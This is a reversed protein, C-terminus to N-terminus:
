KAGDPPYMGSLLLRQTQEDAIGTAKLGMARQYSTLADKFTGTFKNSVDLKKLFGMEALLSKMSAVAEGSDNLQLTKFSRGTLDLVQRRNPDFWLPSASAPQYVILPKDGKDIICAILATQEGGEYLSRLSDPSDLLYHRAYEVGASSVFCFDENGIEAKGNPASLAKVRVWVLLFEQTRLPVINYRNMDQARNQAAMGRCASVMQMEFSAYGSWYSGEYVATVGLLAPDDRTAAYPDAALRQKKPIRLTVLSAICVPLSGNPGDGGSPSLGDFVGYATVLDGTLLRREGEEMTYRVLFVLGPDGDLSLSYVISDEREDVRIIEGELRIKERLHSLPDRFYVAGDSVAFYGDAGPLRMLRIRADAEERLAELEPLSLGELSIRQECLAPYPFLLLLSLLLMFARRM